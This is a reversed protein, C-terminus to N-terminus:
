RAGRDIDSRQREREETEKAGKEREERERESREREEEETERAGRDRTSGIDRISFRAQVIAVECLLNPKLRFGIVARKNNGM